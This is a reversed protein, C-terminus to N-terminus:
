RPISCLLAGLLHTSIGHTLRLKLLGLGNRVKGLDLGRNLAKPVLVPDELFAEGLALSRGLEDEIFPRRCSVAQGM